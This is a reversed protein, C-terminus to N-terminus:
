KQAHNPCYMVHVARNQRGFCFRIPSVGWNKFRFARSLGFIFDHAPKVEVLINLRSPLDQFIVHVIACAHGLYLYGRGGTKRVQHRLKTLKQVVIQSQCKFLLSFAAGAWSAHAAHVDFDWWVIREIGFSSFVTVREEPRSSTCFPAVVSSVWWIIQFLHICDRM